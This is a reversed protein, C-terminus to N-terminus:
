FCQKDSFTRRCKFLFRLTYSKNQLIHGSTFNSGVVPDLAVVSRNLKGTEGDSAQHLASGVGEERSLCRYVHVDLLGSSKKVGNNPIYGEETKTLYAFVGM